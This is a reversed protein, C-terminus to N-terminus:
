NTFSIRFKVELLNNNYDKECFIEPWSSRKNSIKIIGNISIFIFGNNKHFIEDKM